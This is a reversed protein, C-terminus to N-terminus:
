RTAGAAGSGTAAETGVAHAPVVLVPCPSVHPLRQAVSGLTAGALAGRGRSALVIVGAGRERAFEAIAEAENGILADRIELEVPVDGASLDSLLLRLDVETEAEVAHTRAHFIVLPAGAQEALWTAHPLALASRESGDHAMIVVDFMTM